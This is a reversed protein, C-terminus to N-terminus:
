GFPADADDDEAVVLVPALLPDGQVQADRLWLDGADERGRESLEAVLDRRLALM